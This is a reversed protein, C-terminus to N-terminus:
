RGVSDMGCRNPLRRKRRTVPPRGEWLHLFAAVAEMEAAQELLFRRCDEDQTLLRGVTRVTRVFHRDLRIWANERVLPCVRWARPDYVARVRGTERDLHPYLPFIRCALPRCRRDCSGSCVALTGGAAECFRFGHAPAPGEGQALPQERFQELLEREGPFLLMGAASDGERPAAEPEAQAGGAGSTGGDEGRCCARGCVTGCDAPLPTVQDLLAWAQAILRVTDVAM